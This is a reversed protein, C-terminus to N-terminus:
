LITRFTLNIRARVDKKTKLIAHKYFHQTEGSMVLVSRNDLLVDQKIAPTNINRFKFIRDGGFSVSVITPNKGLSKENDQHWGMSDKGDRYYNLLCCNFDLDLKQSIRKRIENVSKTWPMAPMTQGSYRYELNNEGQFSVLRPQKIRKGFLVIEKEQWDIEKQLKQFQNEEEFFDTYLQISANPLSYKKM